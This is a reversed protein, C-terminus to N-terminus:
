RAFGARWRMLQTLDRIEEATFARMTVIASALYGNIGLTSGARAGFYTNIAAGFANTNDSDTTLAFVTVLTGNEYVKVEQGSSASKDLVTARVTWTNQPSNWGRASTGVNGRLASEGYASTASLGWGETSATYNASRESLIGTAANSVNHLTLVTVAQPNGYASLNISSLLTDNVGDFQWTRVGNVSAFLPQSAVTSNLIQARLMWSYTQQARSVGSNLPEGMCDAWLYVGTTWRNRVESQADCRRNHGPAFRMATRGQRATRLM